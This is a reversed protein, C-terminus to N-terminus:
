KFEVVTWYVTATGILNCEVNTSSTLRAYCEGGSTAAGQKILVSKALNVATITTNAAVSGAISTSGTQISNIVSTQITGDLLAARAATYTLNSVATAAAARSSTTTDLNDVTAARAPTWNTTLFDSITKLKGPVGLLFDIM